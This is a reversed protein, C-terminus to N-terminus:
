NTDKNRGRRARANAAMREFDTGHFFWMGYAWLWGGAASLAALFLWWAIGGYAGFLCLLAIGVLVGFASGAVKM